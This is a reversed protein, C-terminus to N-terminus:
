HVLVPSLLATAAFSELEARGDPDLGQAALTLAQLLGFRTPEPEQNWAAVAADTLHRLDPRLSLIEALRAEPEPVYDMRAERIQDTAATIRAPLQSFGYALARDISEDSTKRHHRYFLPAGSGIPVVLGNTCVQRFLYEVISAAGGGVESNRLLFGGRHPDPTGDGLDIEAGDVAVFHSSRDTHEVRAFRFESARPGLVGALRDFLRRDDLTQYEPSVFARLVGVGTVDESPLKLRSRIMWADGQRSLRRNVEDAREETSVLSAQFWRDWRIGLMRALQGQSWPTLALVGIGPVEIGGTATMQLASLPLVLDSIKLSDRMHVEDHVAEFSRFAHPRRTRPLSVPVPPLPVPILATSM